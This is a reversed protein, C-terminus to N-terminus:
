NVTQAKFNATKSPEHPRSIKIAIDCGCNKAGFPPMNIQLGCAAGLPNLINKEDM